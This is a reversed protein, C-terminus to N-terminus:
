LGRSPEYRVNRSIGLEALQPDDPAVRHSEIVALEAETFFAPRKKEFDVFVWETAGVFVLDGGRRIAYRRLSAAGRWSQIWSYMELQDGEFCPRLYEAWHERAVWMRGMARLAEFSWGISAAHNTAIREMWKLYERNNVHGLIDISEPGVVFTEHFIRETMQKIQAASM